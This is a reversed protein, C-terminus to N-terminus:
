PQRRPPREPPALAALRDRYLDFAPTNQYDSTLIAATCCREGDWLRYFILHTWWWPRAPSLFRTLMQDYFAAQAGADPTAIGTETLWVDRDGAIAHVDDLYQDFPPGDPYWHVAVIDQPELGGSARIADLAGAYYGTAVAHHSTEPGALVITPDTADRARSANVYLLAYNRGDATGALTLNPENWIGLVPRYTSYRAVFRAVFDYWDGIADPMQACGAGRNAWAPTCTVTLYSRLDLAAAGAIVNDACDWAFVGPSPELADWGCSGRVLGVGLEALKQPVPARLDFAVIGFRQPPHRAGGAVAAVALLAALRRM